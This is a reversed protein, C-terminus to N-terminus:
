LNNLSILGYKIAIRVLSTLDHADLKKMLNARHKEVTREGIKLLQAVEKNTTGEAVLQLVQRERSTLEDLPNTLTSKLEGKNHLYDFLVINAIAPSLYIQGNMAARIALPLEDQLATKLLYGIAGVALARQVIMKESHMSLIIVACNLNLARIRVTAEHGNLIPMEIDMVVINPKLNEALAVAELGNGAEGVVEVSDIRELLTRIGARVLNHDDAILVKIM